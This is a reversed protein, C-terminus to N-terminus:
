LLKKKVADFRLIAVKKKPGILRAEYIPVYVTTIENIVIGENLDRVDDFKERSRLTKALKKIATEESIEFKKVTNKKLMKKPYNEIDKANVKYTFDRLKGHYDLTIEKEEEVFVHEEFELSVSNGRLKSGVGTSAIFNSTPFVGEGFIIEKVNKGVKIEHTSKRLFDAKYMGSIIMSPEYILVISHVHVENSEPSKLFRRFPKTKEKTIIEQIELNDVQLKLVILKTNPTKDTDVIM